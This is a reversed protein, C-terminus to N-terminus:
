ATRPPYPRAGEVKVLALIFQEPSNLALNQDSVDRPHNGLRIEADMVAHMAIQETIRRDMFERPAKEGLLLGIPIILARADELLRFYEDFAKHDPAIVTTM